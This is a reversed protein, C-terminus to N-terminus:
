AEMDAFDLRGRSGTFADDYTVPSQMFALIHFPNYVLMTAKVGQVTITTDASVVTANTCTADFGFPYGTISFSGCAVRPTTVGDATELSKVYASATGAAWFWAGTWLGIVIVIVTVLIGFRNM